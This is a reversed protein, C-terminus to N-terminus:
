ANILHKNSKKRHHILSIIYLASIAVFLIMIEFGPSEITTESQITSGSIEISADREASVSNGFVDKVYISLTYNGSDPVTFNNSYIGNTTESLTVSKFVTSTEPLQYIYTVVSQIGSEDSVEVSITFETDMEGHLPDLHVSLITPPTNEYFGIAQAMGLSLEEMFPYDATVIRGDVICSTEIYIGGASSVASAISYHGTVEIGNIVGAKALVLPGACIASLVLSAADAAQVFDLVEQSAALEDASYGGPIFMADYNALEVESILLDGDITSGRDSTFYNQLGTHIINCGWSILYSLVGSYERYNFEDALLVLVEVGDAPKAQVILIGDFPMSSLLIPLVVFILGLKRM